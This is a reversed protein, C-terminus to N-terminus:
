KAIVRKKVLKGNEDNPDAYFYFITKNEKFIRKQLDDDSIEDCGTPISFPKVIQKWSGNIFTYTAMSYICGNMPAQYISIEDTGDNNLDHENILRIDCCGANIPKFGNGSFQIQYEDPTGDEIPNGQGEKIKIATATDIKRDGNFDGQIKEGIIPLGSTILGATVRKGTESKQKLLSSSSSFFGIAMVILLQKM